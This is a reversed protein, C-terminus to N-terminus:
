ACIAYVHYPTTQPLTPLGYVLGTWGVPTGEADVVPATSRIGTLAAVLSTDDITVGGGFARAGTPCTAVATSVAGASITGDKTVVSLPVKAGTVADDAIKPTTVSGDVISATNAPSPAAQITTIAAPALDSLQLSGPAINTSHVANPALKAATVSRAALKVATVASSHITKTVVANQSLKISTVAGQRADTTHIEHGNDVGRERSTSTLDCKRFSM